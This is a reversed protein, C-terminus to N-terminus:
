NWSVHFRLDAALNEGDPETETQSGSKDGLSGAAVLLYACSRHPDWCAVWKKAALRSRFRPTMGRPGALPVEAFLMPTLQRHEEDHIKLIGGLRANAWARAQYRGNVSKEHQIAPVALHITRGRVEARIAPLSATAPVPRPLELTPDGWLTFAWGARTNAGRLRAKDALRKEKLKSLALMFNKAQRLSGGVSHRDYILANFFALSFAGGSGSYTRTSTGIVGVAGKRLFPQAKEETLALCSQLFVLSPALPETWNPVGYERMLTSHHGEWLFITQHPLLRRLAAESADAGFLATTDYGGNNLEQATHRSVTELLPLGGGPNSVLIAKGAVSPSTQWLRPRALMLAVVAPDDHFLRGVAFSFPENDTPTLPEMEIFSDKGGPIPNPRRQMPIAQLDAALIINEVKRLLTRDILDTVMREVNSGDDNTLLLPCGCRLAIWPALTSMGIRGPGLDAPNAVVVTQIPKKCRKLGAALVADEDALRHVRQKVLFDCLGVTDGVAYVDNIPCAELCRKLNPVDDPGGHCVLLASKTVGALWAAQLLLRRPQAPALILAKADPLLSKRLDDAPGGTWPRVSDCKSQLGKDLVMMRGADNAVPVIRRPGFRKLFDQLYEHSGPSDLLFVGPHGSAALASSLTITQEDTLNGGLFVVRDSQKGLWIHPRGRDLAFAPSLVVLCLVLLPRRARHAM